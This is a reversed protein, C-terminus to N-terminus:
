ADLAYRRVARYRAGSPHLESEFLTAEAVSFREAPLTGFSARFREVAHRPWPPRLRALTVHPHFPRREPAVGATRQAAQGLREYLAALAAPPAEDHAGALGAWLVRAKGRPPFAGVEDLRLALRGTGACAEAFALHLEPLLDSDTEGLFVLTLHMAEPRIFRAKPFRGRSSRAREALSQRLALPIELAVFLRVSM